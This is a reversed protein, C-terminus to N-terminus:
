RPKAGCLFGKVKNKIAKKARRKGRNGMMKGVRQEAGFEGGSVSGEDPASARRFGEALNEFIGPLSEIIKAGQPPPRSRGSHMASRSTTSPTRKSGAAGSRLHWHPDDAMLKAVVAKLGAVEAQSKEFAVRLVQLELRVALTRDEPSLKDWMEKDQPSMEHTDADVADMADVAAADVQRATRTTVEKSSPEAVASSLDNESQEGAAKTTHQAGPSKDIAGYERIDQVQKHAEVRANYLMRDVTNNRGGISAGVLKDGKRVLGSLHGAALQTANCRANLYHQQALKVLNDEDSEAEPEM